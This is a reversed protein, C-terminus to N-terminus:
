ARRRSRSRAPPRKRRCCSRTAATTSDGHGRRLSRRADAGARPGDLRANADGRRRAEGGRARRPRDAEPHEAGTRAANRRGSRRAGGHDRRRTRPNRRVTGGGRAKRDEGDARNRPRRPPAGRRHRRAAPRFEAGALGSGPRRRLRPRAPGERDAGAAATGGGAREGGQPRLPVGGAAVRAEAHDEGAAIVRLRLKGDDLLLDMGPELAAFVEPHPLEARTSDGPAPSSDLRFRDGARLEASGGAFAGVRLKPGQLDAVVAIPHVADAEVARVAAMLAAM